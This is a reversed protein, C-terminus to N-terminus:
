AAKWVRTFGSQFDAKELYSPNRRIEVETSYTRCRHWTLRADGRNKVRGYETAPAAQLSLGKARESVHCPFLEKTNLDM